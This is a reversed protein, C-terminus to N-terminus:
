DSQHESSVEGLVVEIKGDSTLYVDQIQRMKGMITNAQLTTLGYQASEKLNSMDVLLGSKYRIVCKKWKREKRDLRDITYSDTDSINANGGGTLSLSGSAPPLASKSATTKGFKKPKVCTNTPIEYNIASQIHKHVEAILSLPMVLACVYLFTVKKL